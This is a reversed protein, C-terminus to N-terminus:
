HAHDHEPLGTTLSALHVRYAGKTVVREGATLGAKVQVYDDSQIGLELERREFTEGAVQVFAVPIGKDDVLAGTPIALDRVTEGTPVFLEGHMGIKLQAHPNGTAFILPVSRTAPDIVNGITVVHAAPAALILPERLAPATFRAGEVRHVKPIDPEFLRGEIWVRELDVVTFLHQGAEVLAGPTMQAAVITGAMPSHLLFRERPPTQTRLAQSTEFLSRQSQAAALRAQLIAVEKRAQELRRTPVIRNRHLDRVRALEHEAAELESRAKTIEYELETRRTTSPTLPLILALPEGPEVHRGLAPPGNETALITGGVPAVIRVEGTATPKVEAHLKLAAQLERAVVPETAFNIRWQQDKLFPIGRPEAEEQGQIDEATAAVTVTGAEITDLVEHTEPHARQFLLRYTGPTEPTVVPRYIGPLTPTEVHATISHGERGELTTTLTGAPVPRFTHLDTLHVTLPTDKGAVLPPFEVFLETENTWRTITISQGAHGDEPPAPTQQCGILLSLLLVFGLTKWPMRM